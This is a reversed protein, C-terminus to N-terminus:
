KVSTYAKASGGSSAEKEVQGTATVKVEAGSSASINATEVVLKKANIDAGSSASLKASAAIGDIDISAGSSASATVKGTASVNEIDIDSGSSAKANISGTNIREIDINGASSTIADLRSCKVAQLNIDAASSANLQLISDTSFPGVVTVSSASSASIRNVAPASLYLVVSSGDSSNKFNDIFSFLDGLSKIDKMKRNNRKEIGFLLTKDKITIVVSDELSKSVKLQASSAQNEPAPAYKLNVGGFTKIANFDANIRVNKKVTVDSNKDNGAFATTSPLVIAMIALLFFRIM